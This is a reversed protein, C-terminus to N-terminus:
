HVYYALFLTPKNKLNVVTASRAENMKMTTYKGRPKDGRFGFPIRVLAM